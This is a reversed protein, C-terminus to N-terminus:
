KARIEQWKRLIARRPNRPLKEFFMVGLLHDAEHQAVRANMGSLNIVKEVGFVNFYQMSVHRDRGVIEFLSPMSLCGEQEHDIGGSLELTPNCVALPPEALKGSPTLYAPFHMVFMRIPLGVQPAALGIGKHTNMIAVMESVISILSDGFETVPDCVTSLIPDDWYRLTLM